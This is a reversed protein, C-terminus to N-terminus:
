YIETLCNWSWKGYIKEDKGKEYFCGVGHAYDKIFHGKYYDGNEFFLKGMGNKFDNSFTGQYSKWSDDIYSSLNTYVPLKSHDTAGSFNEFNVAPLKFEQEDDIENYSSNHTKFNIDIKKESEVNIDIKSGSEVDIGNNNFDKSNIIKSYINSKENIIKNILSKKNPSTTHNKPTTETPNEKIQITKKLLNNKNYMMGYGDVRNDKFGGDFALKGNEYFLKGFGCMLDDKWDGVYAAGNVYTLHGLGNKRKNCKWGDYCSGDNYYEKVNSYSENDFQSIPKEIAIDLKNKFFRTSNSNPQPGEFEPKVSEEKFESIEDITNNISEKKVLKILQILNQDKDCSRASDYNNSTILTTDSSYLTEDQILRPSVSKSRDTEGTIMYEKFRVELEKFKIKDESESESTGFNEKSETKIYKSSSYQKKASDESKANIFMSDKNAIHEENAQMLSKKENTVSDENQKSSAMRVGDIKLKEMNYDLLVNEPKLLDPDLYKNKLPSRSKSGEELDSIMVNTDHSINKSDLNKERLNKQDIKIDISKKVDTNTNLTMEYSTQKQFKKSSLKQPETFDDIYFYNQSGNNNLNLNALMEKSPDFEQSQMSEQVIREKLKRKSLNFKSQSVEENTNTRSTLNGENFQLKDQSNNIGKVSSQQLSGLDFGRVNSFDQFNNQFNLQADSNDKNSDILSNKLLLNNGRDSKLRAKETYDSSFETQEKIVTCTKLSHLRNEPSNESLMINNNNQQENIKYSSIDQPYKNEYGSSQKSDNNIYGISEQSNKRPIEKTDIIKESVIFVNESNKPFLRSKDISYDYNKNSTLPVMTKTTNTNKQQIKNSPFNTNESAIPVTKNINSKSSEQVPIRKNIFNLQRIPSVSNCHNKDVFEAVEEKAKTYARYNSHELSKKNLINNLFNNTKKEVNINKTTKEQESNALISRFTAPKQYNHNSISIDIENTIFNRPAKDFNESPKEYIKIDANAEIFDNETNDFSINRPQTKHEFMDSNMYKTGPIKDESVNIAKEYFTKQHNPKSNSINSIQGKKLGMFQQSNTSMDERQRKMNSHSYNLDDFESNILYSTSKENSCRFRDSMSFNINVDYSRLKKQATTDTSKQLNQSIDNNEDLNLALNKMESKRGDKRDDKITSRNLEPTKAMTKKYQSSKIINQVTCNVPNVSQLTVNMSKKVDGTKESSTAINNMTINTSKVYRARSSDIKYVTTKMPSKPLKSTDIQIDNPSYLFKRSANTNSLDQQLSFMNRTSESHNDDKVRSNLISKATDTLNLPKYNNIDGNQMMQNIQRKLDSKNINDKNKTIRVPYNDIKSINKNSFSQQNVPFTKTFNDQPLINSHSLNNNYKCEHPLHRERTPTKSKNENQLRTEISINDAHRSVRASSRYSEQKLENLHTNLFSQEFVKQKGSDNIFNDRCTMSGKNNLNQYSNEYERKSSNGRDTSKQNTSIFSYKTVEPNVKYFSSKTNPVSIREPSLSTNYYKPAYDFTKQIPDKSNISAQSQDRIKKNNEIVYLSKVSNEIERASLNKAAKNHTESGNFESSMGRQLMNGVRNPTKKTTQINNVTVNKSKQQVPDGQTNSGMLYEGFKSPTQYSNGQTMLNKTQFFSGATISNMVTNQPKSGLNFSKEKNKSSSTLAMTQKPQANQLSFNLNNLTSLPKAAQRYSRESSRNPSKVNSYSERSSNLNNNTRKTLNNDQRMHSESSLVNSNIFHPKLICNEEFKSFYRNSNLGTSNQSSGHHKNITSNTHSNQRSSYM